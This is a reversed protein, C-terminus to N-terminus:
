INIKQKMKNLIELSKMECVYVYFENCKLEDNEDKPIRGREIYIYIYVCVCVWLEKHWGLDFICLGFFSIM